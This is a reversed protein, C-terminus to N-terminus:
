LLNLEKASQRSIRKTNGEVTIEVTDDEKKIFEGDLCKHFSNRRRGEIETYECNGYCIFFAYYSIKGGNFDRGNFNGGNFNRGNFNWGNFNGGNFDRGNFDWGNFNGGNFDRGNFNGGNFNGGNFNGGNFDWGNFNGGNFNFNQDDDELSLNKCEINRIEEETPEFEIRVNENPLILDNHENVLKKLEKYNKIIKM